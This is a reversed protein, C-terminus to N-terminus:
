RNEAAKYSTRALPESVAKKFGKLRAIKAYERFRDPHVYEVVEAQAKTPQLYQGLVLYDVGAKRLDDMAEGVEEATEGLGLLISSKTRITRSLLKVAKLTALSRRYSARSDRLHQLREVTEINHAVVAPASALIPKLEEPSYDPILAEAEAGAGKVASVCGAFHAAGRDPLDDRDVSTIVVYSLGLRSVAGALRGPEDSELLRGSPGSKVACFRCNRTCVDGLVMFTATGAGWCEGRNPCRAEDCVTNLGLEDLAAKVAPFRGGGGLGAKLWPPKRSSM